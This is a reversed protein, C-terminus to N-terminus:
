FIVIDGDLTEVKSKLMDWIDLEFNLNKKVKQNLRTGEEKVFESLKKTSCKLLINRIVEYSNRLEVFAQNAKRYTEDDFVGKEYLVGVFIRNVEMKIVVKSISIAQYEMNRPIQKIETEFCFFNIEAIRKISRSIQEINKMVDRLHFTYDPIIEDCDYVWYDAGIDHWKQISKISEELDDKSQNIIIYKGYKDDELAMYNEKERDYGILMTYHYSKWNQYGKGWKNWISLDVKPCLIIGKIVMEQIESMFFYKSKYHGEIIRLNSLFKKSNESELFKIAFYNDGTGEFKYHSYEYDNVYMINHYTGNIANLYSVKSNVFCDYWFEDFPLIKEM